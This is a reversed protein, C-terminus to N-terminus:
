VIRETADIVHITYTHQLVTVDNEEADNCISHSYVHLNKVRNTLELESEQEIGAARSRFRCTAMERAHLM